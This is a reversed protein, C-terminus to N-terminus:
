EYRLAVIPDTRVARRAPLWSALAAAGMLTLTMAAITVLDVAPVEFLQSKVFRTLAMAVVIGLAVGIGALRLGQAVILKTVTGREAGLAMRIGIERTRQAVAYSLVGYLGLAALFLAAAAFFTLLRMAFRRPALSDALLADMTRVQYLPLRPDVARVADRIISAATSPDRSTKVLISGLPMPRQYLSAYYVGRGQDNSLDAQMIHSVVGVIRYPGESSAPQIRQGLPDEEPWYQRALKTDIVAVLETEAGDFDGFVRGKELRIGLTRFYDPTVWRREAQPNAEGPPPIRGEIRFAGGEYDNNFPIPRGMSAAIVGNAGQLHEVVSRAFAAQKEPARYDPPLSYSATMVGQPEFGPNVAQLRAFSRLFLGAMVLLVLALAAEAVVLGSRLRQRAASGTRGGSKLADHPDARCSQWAPALGFLLGTGLTAVTAFLLVFRDVHPQLGVAASEPALRLLLQMAGLAVLLGAVGGAMALLLSEALIYRLLRGRGAGLAARVSLEQARSATRALVLGAINACAILLVLSVAGLLILIPTKTEGASADTFRSADLGWQSNVVFTRVNAPVIALVRGTALKLWASARDFSIGPQTRAMVTLYENLWSQPAVARASLALPVWFDAARPQHFNRSMVGIIQYPTQNLEMTRGLVHPDANFLRVWADYALVVVRNANPQDESAAFVRGIAPRAGFVDFWEASVSAGPIRVPSGQAIYNFNVPRSAGVYQFLEQNARADAFAPGSASPVDLNLKKYHTRLVLIRQPESVGPPHLLIQNVLSFVATNAGIGLAMILGALIFFGKSRLLNRGAHRFDSFTEDIYNTRRMDRCEEQLQSIGGITRIALKRAEDERMGAAVNEEVLQDLHFRFEEDLEREVQSRRILSRLRLRAKDLARM